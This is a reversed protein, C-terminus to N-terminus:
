HFIYYWNTERVTKGQSHIWLSDPMSHDYLIFGIAYGTTDYAVVTSPKIPFPKVIQSPKLGGVTSDKSILVTDNARIGVTDHHFGGINDYYDFTAVLRFKIENIFSYNSVWQIDQPTTSNRCCCVSLYGFLLFPLYFASKM